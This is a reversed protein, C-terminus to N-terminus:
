GRPSLGHLNREDGGKHEGGAEAAADADGDPAGFIRIALGGDGRVLGGGCAAVGLCLVLEAFGIAAADARDIESM